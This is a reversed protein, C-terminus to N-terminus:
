APVSLRASVCSGTGPKSTIECTGGALRVRETMGVIGFGRQMPEQVDFGKGPDSVSILLEDPMRHVHVTARATEAHKRVNTLSEQVVRYVTTQLEKPIADLGDSLAVEVAIGFAAMQDVLDHIGATLGLDDLVASRVGRIVQRGEVIGRRLSDLAATLRRCQDASEVAERAIELHMSAGIVYQMMGDHLEHCLMQRENEQVDILRRLLAKKRALEELAMQRETVDFGVGRILAPHGEADVYVHGMLEIWSIGGEAGIVRYTMRTPAMNRLAAQVADIISQRDDPHVEALSDALSLRTKTEPRGHLAAFFPSTELMQTKLDLTLTGMRGAEIALRYRDETSRVDQRALQTETVDISIGALLTKGRADSLAFKVTSWYRVAGDADVSIEDFQLPTGSEIVKRDNSVYARREAAPFLESDTRGICSTTGPRIRGIHESLRHNEYVYRGEADKMFALFPGHDMYGKLQATTATLEAALHRYRVVLWALIFVLSAAVVFAINM